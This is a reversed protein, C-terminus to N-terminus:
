TSEVPEWLQRLCFCSDPCVRTDGTIDQHLYHSISHEQIEDAHKEEPRHNSLCIAHFLSVM